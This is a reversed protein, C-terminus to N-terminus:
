QTVTFVGSDFSGSDIPLERTELDGTALGPYGGRLCSARIAYTSGTQFVDGPITWSPQTSTTEFRSTLTAVGGSNVIELLSFGYLTADTRDATFTVNVAKGRDIAVNRGDTDLVASEVRVSTPLCASFDRRAGDTPVASITSLVSYLTVAPLGGPQQYSRTATAAWTFTSPWSRAVFPNGYSAVLNVVGAAAPLGGLALAPGTVFGAAAGPAATISWNFSPPNMAPTLNAMRMVAGGTDIEVAMAQDLPVATMAGAVSNTAGNLELPAATFVGTLAGNNANDRRLVLFADEPRLQPHTAGMPARSLVSSATYAIPAAPALLTAGVAPLEAAAFNYVTWAGMSLWQLGETAVYPTDLTVNFALTAGPPAADTTPRGLYGYLGNIQRQPLALFRTVGDDALSFRLHARDEAPVEARLQGAAPATAAVSRFGSAETPDPILYTAGAAVDMPEVVVTAGVAYRKLSFRVNPPELETEDLGFLQACGALPALGAAAVLASAIAGLRRYCHARRM